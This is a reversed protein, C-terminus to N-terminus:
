SDLSSSLFGYSDFFRISVITVWIYEENTKPIMDFKIKDNKEDILKKFFLHCDYSSFNHFVFPLFNSQKQTFKINCSQHAPGRYKGTLHCPDRVKDVTIEKACLRCFNNKRYGEEDEQSMIINKCPKEIYFSM